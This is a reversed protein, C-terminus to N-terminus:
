NMAEKKINFCHNFFIVRGKSELNELIIPVNLWLLGHVAMYRMTWICCLGHVRITWTYVTCKVYLFCGESQELMEETIILEGSALQITNSRSNRKRVGYLYACM